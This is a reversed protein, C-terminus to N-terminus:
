NLSEFFEIKKSDKDLTVIAKKWDPTYGKFKGHRKLKGPMNLTNIKSVKVNFIEEVAKKIEIKNFSKKVKFTYKKNTLGKMTKETIIPKTIIDHSQMKM